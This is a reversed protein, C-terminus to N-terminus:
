GVVATKPEEAGVKRAAEGEVGVAAETDKKKKEEGELGYETELETRLPVREEFLVILFNVAAFAIAIQWLLKLADKYVGIIQERTTEPFSWVFSAYANEYARNGGHFLARVQPDEIRYALQAFKNNFISAPIAVGWISGFSRVFAWASTTAAQDSEPLQAQAAPLLTNLVFGSGIAQIMEYVVWKATSTNQDLLTLLGNGIVAVAFGFIHLPKYEGWRALMLVAIIAGPLGFLIVPLINVGSQSASVGLVAQFYVPLFFLVWYVMTSNLFTALFIISTTRSSFLKPPMVPEKAKTEYWGFLFFGAFGIILPSLIRGSAWSYTTGGYTTAYLIGVTSAMLIVNGTYDIRALKQIHTETRNYATRVFLFVMVMSVGGIPITMYFVWRWTTREVILGGIWPGIALGITYVMLIVSMYNGRIRLPVLDSVIIDIIIYLGGSGIGQIARGAILMAGNTAGGSIGSGLTFFAVIAMTVWRRGYINALQGFLPQIAAGTLFFVNTIWVYNQGMDLDAVIHPLATTVVTNELASLLGMVACTFLIAWFRATPKFDTVGDNPKAKEDAKISGDNNNNNNLNSNTSSDADNAVPTTTSGTATAADPPGKDLDTM